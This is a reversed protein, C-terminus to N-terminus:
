IIIKFYIQLQNLFITDIKNKKNINLNKEDEFKSSINTKHNNTRKFQKCEDM